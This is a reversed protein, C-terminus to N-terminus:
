IEKIVMAYRRRSAFRPDAFLDALTYELVGVVRQQGFVAIVHIHHLLQHLVHLERGRHLDIRM